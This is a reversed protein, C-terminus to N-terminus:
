NFHKPFSIQSLQWTGPAKLFTPAEQNQKGFFFFFIRRKTSTVHCYNDIYNARQFDKEKKRESEWARAYGLVNWWICISVVSLVRSSVSLLFVKVAIVINNYKGCQWIIFKVYFALDGWAYQHVRRKKTSSRNKKAYMCVSVYVYGWGM